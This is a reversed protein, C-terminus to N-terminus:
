DPLAHALELVRDAADRIELVCDMADVLHARRGARRVEGPCKNGADPVHLLGDCRRLAQGIRKCGVPSGSSRRIRRRRRCRLRKREACANRLNSKREETKRRRMFLQSSVDVSTRAKANAAAVAEPAPKSM